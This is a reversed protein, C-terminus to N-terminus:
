YGNNICMAFSSEDGGDGMKSMIIYRRIVCSSKRDIKVAGDCSNWLCFARNRLATYERRKVAGEERRQQAQSDRCASPDAARACDLYLTQSAAPAGTLVGAFAALILTKQM